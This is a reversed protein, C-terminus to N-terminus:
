SPEGDEEASADVGVAAASSADPAALAPAVDVAGDPQEQTAVAAVGSADGRAGLDQPAPKSKSKPKPVPRWFGQAGFRRWGWPIWRLLTSVMWLAWVLMLGRWVLLPVSIIGASPTAGDIRDTYWRLLSQSSNYGRVQMDVDVLLNVHVAGYLIGVMGLTLGVLVLQRLDFSWWSLEPTAERWSMAVFWIVVMVIALMPLQSMGLSLLVWEYTRVPLHKLRGLILALFVMWVLHSWFLIAPGWSPGFAWLLWRQREMRVEIEVNTAASGLDVVPVREIMGGGTPQQWRVVLTQEGPILDLALVGDKPQINNPKGRVLVEQLQAGQPLTIRQWGGQSARVHVTLEASSLREGPTYRYSVSSVTASAGPAGKPKSIKLTVSEEPWPKWMPEFVGQAGVVHVPALGEYDCRWIRTCELLWTESWPKDKAAVLTLQESQEFNSVYEVVQVGRGFQVLAEGAEVRIGDTTVSEGPLLPIKVLQPREADERTITTRTQWPLALSVVRQVFFWPPLEKESGQQPATLQQPSEQKAKRTLQLSSDPKNFRDLGDIGWDESSFEVYRPLQAADLQITVVQSAALRARMFVEHRGKPIRALLMGGSERRMGTVEVGDVQVLQPVLASVPGPLSLAGLRQAHVEARLEVQQGQVKIDMKSVLVCPGDCRQAEILRAKLQSLLEDSPEAQAYAAQPSAGIMVGALAGILAGPVLIRKLGGVLEFQARRGRSSLAFRGPNALVLAMLVFFFVSLIRWLAAMTPSLLWLKIQHDKAVPGSWQLQWSSWSWSPLGPGTQVVENPDVQQIAVNDLWDNSSSSQSSYSALMRQKRLKGDSKEMVKQSIGDQLESQLGIEEDADRFSSTPAIMAERAVSNDWRQPSIQAHLAYRIQERAFGGLIVVLVVSAVGVYALLGRKIWRQREPVVRLLALGALLHFWVYRPADEYGHALVMALAAIVGWPWGFLKGMAFAIMLLVFFEFLSWSDVWTRDVKDVGRAAMLSWGPPLNLTANLSQVDHEWGVANLGSAGSEIRSEAVLQVQSERLEVGQHGDQTTILLGESAGQKAVRGLTGQPGFDVRWGQNLKGSLQDQVTFGDGDTDLWLVRNLRFMNPNSAGQGRRTTTLSLSEKPKALMTLAGRWDQPLTTRGADITTLGDLEVSRLAEDPQWLWIEQAEFQASPPAPVELREVSATIYSDVEIKHTGPRAYVKVQGDPMLQTPLPSRVAVHRTKPLMVTGLSLERARGSVNLEVLTTVKMPVGDIIKRYISGRLTDADSADAGEEAGLNSEQIWLRGTDDQRPQEVVRGLASLRVLAVSQPIQLVQPPESWRWQGTIKHEGASVKLKPHGDESAVVIADLGDVKVGQPWHQAGGPLEVWRAGEAWLSLSFTGQGAQADVSLLQPWQCIHAGQHQACELETQDHLVWPVWPKLPEPIEGPTLPSQAWAQGQGLLVCGLLAWWLLPKLSSASQM